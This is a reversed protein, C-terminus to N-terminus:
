ETLGVEAFLAKKEKELDDFNKIHKKKLTEVKEKIKIEGSAKDYYMQPPEYDFEKMDTFM